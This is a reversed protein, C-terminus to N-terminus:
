LLMIKTEVPLIKTRTQHPEWEGQIVTGPEGPNAKTVDTEGLCKSTDADRKNGGVPKGM